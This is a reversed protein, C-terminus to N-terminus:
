PKTVHMCLALPAPTAHPRCDIAQISASASPSFVRKASLVITGHANKQQPQDQAQTITLMVTCIHACAHACARSCACMRTCVCTTRDHSLNILVHTRAHSCTHTHMYMRMCARTFTHSRAHIRVCTCTCANWTHACSHTSTYTRANRPLRALQLVITVLMPQAASLRQGSSHWRSACIGARVHTWWCWCGIGQGNYLGM